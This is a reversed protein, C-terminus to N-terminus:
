NPCKAYAAPNSLHRKRAFESFTHRTPGDVQLWRQISEPFFFMSVLIAFYPNESTPFHIVFSCIDFATLSLQEKIYRNEILVSQIRPFVFYRIFYLLPLYLLLKNLIDQKRKKQRRRGHAASWSSKNWGRQKQDPSFPRGPFLNKDNEGPQFRIPSEGPQSFQVSLNEWRSTSQEQFTHWM